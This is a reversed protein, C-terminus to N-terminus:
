SRDKLADLLTGVPILAIAVIAISVACWTAIIQLTIQTLSIGPDAGLGIALSTAIGWGWTAGPLARRINPLHRSTNATGTASAGM